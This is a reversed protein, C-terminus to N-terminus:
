AKWRTLDERVIEGAAFALLRVPSLRGDIVRGISIKVVKGKMDMM